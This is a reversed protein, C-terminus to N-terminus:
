RYKKRYRLPTDCMVKKFVRTFKSPNSYGVENAIATISNDTTQLLESAKKMRQQQIYQYVTCGVVQKFGKQVDVIPLHFEAALAKVRLSETIERDIKEKIARIIGYRKEETHLMLIETDEQICLSVFQLVKSKLVLYNRMNEQLESMLQQALARHVFSSKRFYLPNDQFMRALLKEWGDEIIESSRANVNSKLTEVNVYISVGSFSWSMGEYYVWPSSWDFFVLTKEDISMFAEDVSFRMKAYGSTICTIEIMKQDYKRRGGQKRTYTCDKFIVLEVGPEVTIRLMSGYGYQPIIRYKEGLWVDEVKYLYENELDENWEILKREYM